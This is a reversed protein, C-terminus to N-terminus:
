QDLILVKKSHTKYEFIYLGLDLEKPDKYIEIGGITYINILTKDNVYDIFITNSVTFAGDYDVQKLQYYYNIEHKIEDLYLYDIRQNSNGSGYIIAITEFNINDTSRLIEFYDNNEESATSWHINIYDAVIVANFAILEIPLPKCVGTYTGSELINVNNNIDFLETEGINFHSNSNTGGNPVRIIKGGEHIIVTDTCSININRNNEMRFEGYIDIRIGPIDAIKNYTQSGSPLTIVHNQLIIISNTTADPVIGSDWTSGDDWNGSQVTTYNTSMGCVSVFLLLIIGIATMLFRFTKM